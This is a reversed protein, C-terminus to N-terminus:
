SFGLNQPFFDDLFGGQFIREGKKGWKQGEWDNGTQSQAEDWLIRSFNGAQPEQEPNKWSNKPGQEPPLGLIGFGGGVIVFFFFFGIFDGLLRHLELGFVGFFRRFFKGM